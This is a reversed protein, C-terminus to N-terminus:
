TELIAVTINKKELVVIGNDIKIYIYGAEKDTGIAFGFSKNM